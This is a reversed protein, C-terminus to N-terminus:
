FREDNVIRCANDWTLARIGGESVHKKLYDMCVSMQPPRSTLNHADTSIVHALGLKILKKWQKKCHGGWSGLVSSANLQIVGGRDYFEEIWDVHKFLCRYRETHALVPFYGSGQLQDMAARIEFLDVSEPFDVLVYRSGAVTRCRGSELAPMCSQHYGLEHGLFLHMDPHKKSVYDCLMAYSRESKEYTDGFLYPSYHPTLCLARTGDEYATELMAFMEDPTKAGDDVGCLMHSHMDFFQAM